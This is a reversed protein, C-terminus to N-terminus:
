FPKSTDDNFTVYFLNVLLIYYIRRIGWHSIKFTYLLTFLKM